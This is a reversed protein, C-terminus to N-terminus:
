KLGIRETEDGEGHGVWVRRRGFAVGVWPGRLTASRCWRVAGSRDGAVARHLLLRERPVGAEEGGELPHAGFWEKRGRRKRGRVCRASKRQEGPPLGAPRPAVDPASSSGAAASSLPLPL